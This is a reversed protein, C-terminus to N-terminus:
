PAGSQQLGMTGHKGDAAGHTMARPRFAQSTLRSIMAGYKRGTCPRAKM